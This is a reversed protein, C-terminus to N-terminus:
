TDVAWCNVTGICQGIWQLNPSAYTGESTPCAMESTSANGMAFDQAMSCSAAYYIRTGTGMQLM